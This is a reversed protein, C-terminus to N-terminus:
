GLLSRYLANKREWTAADRYYMNFHHILIPCAQPKHFNVFGEHVKGTLRVYNKILRYHADPHATPIWEKTMELDFWHKRVMSIADIGKKGADQCIKRMQKADEPLIIEDSDVILAWPTKVKELMLNRAQSFDQFKFKYPNYNNESLWEFTNDTTKDDVGIVYEDVNDKLTALCKKLPELENCTIICATLM